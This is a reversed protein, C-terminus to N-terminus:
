IFGCHRKVHDLGSAHIECRVKKIVVKELFILIELIFETFFFYISFYRCHCHSILCILNRLIEASRNEPQTVSLHHTWAIYTPISAHAWRVVNSQFCLNLDSYIESPSYMINVEFLVMAVRDSKLFKGVVM